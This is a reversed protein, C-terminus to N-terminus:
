PYQKCIRLIRELFKPAGTVCPFYPILLGISRLCVLSLFDAFRRCSRPYGFINPPIVEPDQASISLSDSSLKMIRQFLQVCLFILLPVRLFPASDEVNKHIDLTNSICRRFYFYWCLSYELQSLCILIVIPPYSAEGVFDLFIRALLCFDFSAYRRFSADVM